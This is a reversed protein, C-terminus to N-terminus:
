LRIMVKYVGKFDTLSVTGDPGIQLSLRMCTATDEDVLVVSSWHWGDERKTLSTSWDIKKASAPIPPHTDAPYLAARPPAQVVRYNFMQVIADALIAADKKTPAPYRLSSVFACAEKMSPLCIALEGDSLLIVANTTLPHIVDNHKRASYIDFQPLVKKLCEGSSRSLAGVKTAETEAKPVKAYLMILGRKQAQFDQGVAHVKQSLACDPLLCALVAALAALNTSMTIPPM